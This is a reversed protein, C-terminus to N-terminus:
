ISAFTKYLFHLCWLSLPAVCCWVCRSDVYCQWNGPAASVSPCGTVQAYTNSGVVKLAHIYCFVFVIPSISLKQHIKSHIICNADDTWWHTVKLHHWHYWRGTLTNFTEDWVIAESFNTIVMSSWYDKYFCIMFENVPWFRMKRECHISYM